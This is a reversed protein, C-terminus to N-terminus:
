LMFSVLWPAKSGNGARRQNSSKKWSVPEDDSLGEDLEALEEETATLMGKKTSQRKRKQRPREPSEEGRGAQAQHQQHQPHYGDYGGAAGGGNMMMGSGPHHLMAAEKMERRALAKASVPIHYQCHPCTMSDPSLSPPHFPCRLCAPLCAPLCASLCLRFFQSVPDRHNSVRTTPLFTVSCTRCVDAVVRARRMCM